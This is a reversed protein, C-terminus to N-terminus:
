QPSVHANCPTPCSPLAAHQQVWGVSCGWGVKCECYAVWRRFCGRLSGQLREELRQQVLQSVRTRARWAQFCTLALLRRCLSPQSPIFLSPCDLRHQSWCFGGGGESQVWRRQRVIADGVAVAQRIAAQKRAFAARKLTMAAALSRWAVFCRATAGRSLLNVAQRLAERKAQPCPTHCATASNASCNCVVLQM